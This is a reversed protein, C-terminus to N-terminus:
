MLHVFLCKHWGLKKKSITMLVVSPELIKEHEVYELLARAAKTCKCKTTIANFRWGWM